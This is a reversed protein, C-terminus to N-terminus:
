RMHSGERHRGCTSLASVACKRHLLRLGYDRPGHCLRGYVLDWELQVVALRALPQKGGQFFVVIHPSQTTSLLVFYSEFQAVLPTKIIDRVDSHRACKYAALTHWSFLYVCDTTKSPLLAEGISDHCFFTIVTVRVRAQSTAAQIRAHHSVLM